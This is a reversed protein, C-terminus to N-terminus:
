NCVITTRSNRRGHETRPIWGNRTIFVNFFPVILHPPESHIGHGPWPTQAGPGGDCAGDAGPGTVDRPTDVKKIFTLTAETTTAARGNSSPRAETRPLFEAIFRYKSQYQFSIYFSTIQRSAHGLRSLPTPTHNLESPYLTTARNTPLPPLGAARLRYQRIEEM